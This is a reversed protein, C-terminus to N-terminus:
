PAAYRSPVYRLGLNERLTRGEYQTRFLKRRQLEPIVLEVFDEAAGPRSPQIVFGDTAGTLLWEEMLDAIKGTTGIPDVFPMIGRMIKLDDPGRGHAALRSKMAAYDARAAHIDPQGGYFVMDAVGAALCASNEAGGAISLPLRGQPPRATDLPGRVRFHPGQHNLRHFKAPAFYQGSAKDRLFADDDWSDWLGHVVEVFEAARSDRAEDVDFNTVMNWGARGRSIHDISAMRRAVNYPHNASTSVTPVLGIRSTVAAVASLALTPELKPINRMAATDALYIFDFLGREALRANDIYHRISIGGPSGIALCLRLRRGTM